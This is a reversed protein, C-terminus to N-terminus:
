NAACDCDGAEVTGRPVQNHGIQGWLGPTFVEYRAALVLWWYSGKKNTKLRVRAEDRKEGRERNRNMNTIFSMFDARNWCGKMIRVQGQTQTFTLCNRPLMGSEEAGSFLGWLSGGGLSPMWMRGQTIQDRTSLELHLHSAVNLVCIFGCEPFTQSAHPWMRKAAHVCIHGTISRRSQQRGRARWLKM